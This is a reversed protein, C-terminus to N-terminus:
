DVESRFRVQDLPPIQKLPSFDVKWMDLEYLRGERDLYISALVRTEDADNFEAEAAVGGFKRQDHLGIWIRLSGMGGDDMDQVLVEDLEQLLAGSSKGTKLMGELLARETPRLKRPDGVVYSHRKDPDSV